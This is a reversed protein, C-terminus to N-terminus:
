VQVMGLAEVTDAWRQHWTEVDAQLGEADRQLSACEDRLQEIAAEGKTGGFLFFSLLHYSSAADTVHACNCVESVMADNAEEAEKLKKKKESLAWSKLRLQEKLDNMDHHHTSSAAKLAGIEALGDQRDQVARRSAVREAALEAELESIRRLAAALQESAESPLGAAIRYQTSTHATRPRVVLLEKLERAPDM